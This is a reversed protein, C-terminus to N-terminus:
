VFCSQGLLLVRKRTYYGRWIRGIFDDLPPWQERGSPHHM